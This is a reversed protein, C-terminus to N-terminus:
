RWRLPTDSRFRGIVAVLGGIAAAVGKALRVVDIEPRQVDTGSSLALQLAWTLLDMVEPSATFAGAAMALTGGQVTLSRLPSKTLRDTM